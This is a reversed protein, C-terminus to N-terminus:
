PRDAPTTEKGGTLREEPRSPLGVEGRRPLFLQRCAPCGVLERLRLRAAASSRKPAAGVAQPLFDRFFYGCWRELRRALADPDGRFSLAHPGVVLEYGTDALAKVELSSPPETLLVDGLVVGRSCLQLEPLPDDGAKEATPLPSLLLDPYKELRIPGLRAHEALEFVTFAQGCRTWPRDARATWLLRLCTLADPNDVDLVDGLAPAMLGVEVLEAVEFGADFARAAILVRLRALRGPTWWRDEWHRLLQEAVALPLNGELCRSIQRAVLLVPDGGLTAADAVALRWLAALHAASGQGTRVAKEIREIAQGLLRERRTPLGRHISALAFAALLASSELSFDGAHWLPALREWGHNVARDLASESLLVRIRVFLFALIAAAFALVVPVTVPAELLRQTLALIVALLLPPGMLLLLLGRPTWRSGEEPGDHVLHEPTAVTLRPVLGRESVEVCYGGIAIRGRSITLREAPADVRIPVLASCTPCLSGGNRGAEELLEPKAHGDEIRGVTLLQQLRGRGAEGDCREALDFCRALLNGDRSKHYAAVWEEIVAWPERARNGDLLLHHALWLHKVM